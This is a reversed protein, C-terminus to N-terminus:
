NVNLRTYSKELEKLQAELWTKKQKDIDSIEKRLSSLEAEIPRMREKIEKADDNILNSIIPINAAIGKTKREDKLATIQAQLESVQANLEREREVESSNSDLWAVEVYDQEARALKDWSDTQEDIKFVSEHPGFSYEKLEGEKDPKWYRTERGAKVLAACNKYIFLNELHASEDLTAAKNLYALCEKASAIFADQDEKLPREKKKYDALLRSFYECVVNNITLRDQNTALNKLTYLNQDVGKSM